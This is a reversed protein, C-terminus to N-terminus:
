QPVDNQGQVVMMALLSLGTGRWAVMGGHRPEQSPVTPAMMRHSVNDTHEHRYPNARLNSIQTYPSAHVFAACSL